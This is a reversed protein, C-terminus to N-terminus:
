GQLQKSQQYVPHETSAELTKLSADSVVHNDSDSFNFEVCPITKTVYPMSVSQAFENYFFTSSIAQSITNLRKQIDDIFEHLGRNIVDNVTMNILMSHLQHLQHYVENTKKTREEIKCISKKVLHICKFISRPFEPDFILFNAVNAYNVDHYKKLHMEFASVSKLLSGWQIIDYPTGVDEDSPLIIFYKVDLLRSTKDAREILRGMRCFHWAENHSMTSDILGIFINNYLKIKELFQQINSIQRSKRQEVFLYLQNICAWMESTIVESVSRANDRAQRLCSLISSPNHEDFILFQIVNSECFNPYRSSYDQTDGCAEILAKWTLTNDNMPTDLMLNVNVHIFRTINDARELYRSMWYVNNAVRGLM